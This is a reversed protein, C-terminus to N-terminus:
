EKIKSLQFSKSADWIKGFTIFYILCMGMVQVIETQMTAFPAISFWWDFVTLGVVFLVLMAIALSLRFRSFPYKKHESKRAKALTFLLLIASFGAAIVCLSSYIEESIKSHQYAITITFISCIVTFATPLAKRLINKLFNGQIRDKNPELALLFSPIGITVMSILSLQIPMFPYEKQWLLFLLALITSYITKVLFLSASRELNNISRRGELVVQPMSAFNSDLLILQAVNKTADSGNAMAISCDAEKLALVDNVGDGTMAVSRGQEKLALIIEKKQSPTVRGFISYNSVAKKLEEETKITSADIYNEFDKMEVQKAIQSVTVPNDGSIIKIDVGQEKFYKLTEKAEKRVKDKLYLFGVIEINHPLQKEQKNLNETTHIIVLVRFEKAKEIVESKYNEIEKGLIIEPAGLIYTGKEKFTVGSWKTKSSFAIIEEAKWIEKRKSFKDKIALMTSNSDTSAFALNAVINEFEKENVIPLYDKVEMKGETLTGTKDLCLTDVRALTEICYLEQVLVKRKSLRIVSVALVTSTLLVLGEPIMGIMAAVTKVVAEQMSSNLVFYQNSFLLVGIPIIAFTLIKIIKKLTQMMESNVKKVYKAGKSIKAAYNEEGVHVVKARCKGSLIISGSFISDGKQKYLTDAEGTLFSEDVEVFGEEIISDTAVQNGTELEVIDDVVLEYISIEEKKGDRIVKAKASALVALKDVMRKSHIEQVTSIATNIIVVLLFFMNKYSGVAFISFALLLNLINFLTIFNEKIIQKISKTPLTTDANVLNKNKREEVQKSTLGIQEKKKEEVM